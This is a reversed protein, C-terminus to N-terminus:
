RKPYQPSISVLYEPGDWREKVREFSKRVLINVMKLRLNRFPKVQTSLAKKTGCPLEDDEIYNHGTCLRSIFWFSFFSHNWVPLIPHAEYTPSFVSNFAIIEPHFEFETTIDSWFILFWHPQNKLVVGNIPQKTQSKGTTIIKQRKQKLWSFIDNLACYFM